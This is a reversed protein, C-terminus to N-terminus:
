CNNMNKSKAARCVSRIIDYGYEYKLELINLMYELINFLLKTNKVTECGFNLNFKKSTKIISLWTENLAPLLIM